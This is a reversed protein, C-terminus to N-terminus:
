RGKADELALAILDRHAALLGTPLEGPPFFRVELVERPDLRQAGGVLRGQFGVELRLRYGSVMRVVRDVAVEYGAEERVERQLAQELTEGREAYGGPLGWSGPRWFRHRQLLVRGRDDLIVGSVGVVFKHHVLWLLYWQWRGRLRWWLRALLGTV